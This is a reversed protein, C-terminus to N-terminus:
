AVATPTGLVASFADRLAAAPDAPATVARYAVFGDPRVLLAGGADHGRLSAWAGDPDHLDGAAGVSHVAIPGRQAELEAAAARWADAGAGDGTLLLFGRGDVLHVTSRREGDYELWAHPLHHGPRASQAHLRGTPDRDPVPKGDPVLAGREYAYGLEVDAEGYEWGLTAYFAELLARRGRGNASDEFLTELVGRNWEPPAGPVLGFGATASMYSFFRFTAWDVLERGVPRREEEYSDLLSADARGQVVASLKWALNGVDQFGMNMGLGGNPPHRHAADGVLLFRGAKYREALASLILWHSIELVELDLDALKLHRRVDAVAQAEDYAERARGSDDVPLTILLHWEQSHRGWRDPGVAVIDALAFEGDLQPAVFLMHLERDNDVYPSLDASFHVSVMNVFPDPGALEIGLRPGVTRGGDAGVVYQARVTFSASGDRPAITATIGDADESWDSVEHGFLIGDPNREEAHRRLVPEMLRQNLNGFRYPTSRAYEDALDGGGWTDCRFILQGDWPEEGGLSTYWGAQSFHENPTGAAYVEEAIGARDFLEMTPPNLIHAKPLLSTGAHREALLVDVGLDGLLLATFLGSAGGGVVLVDVERDAARPRGDRASAATSSTM